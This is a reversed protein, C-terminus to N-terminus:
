LLHKTRQYIYLLHPFLVTNSLKKFFLFWLIISTSLFMLCILFHLRPPNIYNFLSKDVVRRTDAMAPSILQILCLIKAMLPTPYPPLSVHSHIKVTHLSWLQQLFLLPFAKWLGHDWGGPYAVPMEVKLFFWLWPYLLLHM